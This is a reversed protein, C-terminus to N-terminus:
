LDLKLILYVYKLDKNTISNNNQYKERLIDIKENISLQIILRNYEIIIENKNNTIKEDNVFQIIYYNYLINISIENYKNQVYDLLNKIQIDSGFIIKYENYIEFLCNIKNTFLQDIYEITGM